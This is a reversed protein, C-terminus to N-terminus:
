THLNIHDIIPRYLEDTHVIITKIQLNFYTNLWRSKCINPRFTFLQYNNHTATSLCLKLHVTKRKWRTLIQRRHIIVDLTPFM